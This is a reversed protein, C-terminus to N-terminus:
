GLDDTQGFHHVNVIPQRQRIDLIQQVFPPDVDRMVRNPEPPVPEPRDRRSLDPLAPHSGHPMEAVTAPM